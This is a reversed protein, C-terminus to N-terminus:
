LMAPKAVSHFVGAANAVSVARASRAAGRASAGSFLDFEEGIFGHAETTQGGVIDAKAADFEGV